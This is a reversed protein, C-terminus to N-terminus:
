MYYYDNHSFLLSVSAKTLYHCQLAASQLRDLIVFAGFVFEPIYYVRGVVHLCVCVCVCVCM